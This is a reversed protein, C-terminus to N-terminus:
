YLEKIFSELIDCTVMRKAESCKKVRDLLICMQDHTLNHGMKQVVGKLAKTGTHKGIILERTGGVMEPSFLEYTMPNELVAAVHIGSEHSFANKGVVPKTRPIKIGSYNEVMKSIEMLKSVDYKEIGYQVRLGMLVEELASNGSREGIGNVTTHLQYAGAEAASLTNAVAMGLDNHCHICLKTHISKKLESVLWFTTSPNLIGVTDAISLYDAGHDEAKKFISKLVNIDTRTADEAAFRVTLGHDKAYDLVDLACSEAEAFTKHYKYKLHIDSTAIFVSVFDVDCRLAVDIDRAVSRALCCIRANLGLHAIEKVTAEEAPSVVPFGAEIVNIGISDLKQAIAIKEERTFAVGPTQEGDRLTVDCIEFNKPISNIHEMYINKSYDAM